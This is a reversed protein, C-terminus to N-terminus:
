PINDLKDCFIKEGDRVGKIIYRQTCLKVLIKKLFDIIAGLNDVDETRIKEYKKKSIIVGNKQYSRM